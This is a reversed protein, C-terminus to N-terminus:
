KKVLENARHSKRPPVMLVGFSDMAHEAKNLVEAHDDMMTSPKGEM